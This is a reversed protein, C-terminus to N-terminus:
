KTLKTSSFADLIWDRVIRRVDGGVEDLNHHAGEFLVLQKPQKAIDYAYKSSGPPLVQDALGHLLLISCRPGLESAADAGHGQTALTVVTCVTESQAGAQIVVAGGFSHGTLAATRVGANELFALGALVDLACEELHAPVRYRIWLSAISEAALEAALDPYLNNAPTHWGGVAGPVWVAGRTAGESPYYRCAIPGRSTVLTVPLYGDHEAGVGFSEVLMELSDERESGM